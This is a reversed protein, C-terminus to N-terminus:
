STNRPALCAKRRGNVLVANGLLQVKQHKPIHGQTDAVKCRSAKMKITKLNAYKRPQQELKILYYKPVSHAQYIYLPM